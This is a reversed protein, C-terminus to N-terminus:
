IQKDLLWMHKQVKWFWHVDSQLESSFQFKEVFFPSKEECIRRFEKIKIEQSVWLSSLHKEDLIAWHQLQLRVKISVARQSNWLNYIMHHTKHHHISSNTCCKVMIDVNSWPIFLLIRPPLWFTLSKQIIEPLEIYELFCLWHM